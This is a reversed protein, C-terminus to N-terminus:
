APESGSFLRWTWDEAGNREFIAVLRYPSRKTAQPHTSVLDGEAFVWAMQGHISLDRRMWDWSLRDDRDFLRGILAALDERTEMIEGFESGILRFGPSWLEDVIGPNRGFLLRSM